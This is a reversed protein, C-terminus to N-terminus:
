RQGSRLLYEIGEAYTAVHGKEGYLKIKEFERKMADEETDDYFDPFEQVPVMILEIDMGEDHVARLWTLFARYQHYKTTVVLLRKWGHERTLRLTSDAEARTHPATEEWIIDESPVGLECLNKALMGAPLSGYVHDNANSTIVICPARHALYLEAVKPVRHFRDGALLVIADATKPNHLALLEILQKQPNM